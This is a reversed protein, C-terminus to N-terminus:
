HEDALALNLYVASLMVFIYAQLLAVFIEFLSFVLGATLSLAGVARVAGTAEFFLVHTGAFCLVLLLHGAMMNATLRLTLTAPRILFVQLFEIPTLIIYAWWPVGSPFLSMRLYRWFGHKGVGAGLYMVYVWAAMVLPLGILATASINLFPVVGTVNFFFIAVFLTTLFALYRQGEKKGLVEEVVQVRIFDLVIEVLAQGRRPVVRARSAVVAFIAVLVIAAIVRVAM